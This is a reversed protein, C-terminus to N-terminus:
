PTARGIAARLLKMVHHDSSYIPALNAEAAECAALLDPASAMLRADHESDIGSVIGYLHPEGEHKFTQAISWEFIDAYKTLCRNVKWPGPTHASM